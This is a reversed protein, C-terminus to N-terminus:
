VGTFLCMQYLIKLVNLSENKKNAFLFKGPPMPLDKISKRPPTKAKAPLSVPLPSPSRSPPSEIAELETQDIGPPMPLKTVNKPKTKNVEPVSKKPPPSSEATVTAPKPPASSPLPPTPPSTIKETTSAAGNNSNPLEIDNLKAPETEPIPIDDIDMVVPSTNNKNEKSESVVKSDVEDQKESSKQTSEKENDAKAHNSKNELLNQELKRLELERKHRDKM